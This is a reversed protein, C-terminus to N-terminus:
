SWWNRNFSQFFCISEGYDTTFLNVSQGLVKNEITFQKKECRSLKTWKPLIYIPDRTPTDISRTRSELRLLNITLQRTIVLRSLFSFRAWVLFAHVRRVLLARLSVRARAGESISPYSVRKKHYLANGFRSVYLSFFKRYVSPWIHMCARSPGRVSVLLQSPFGM